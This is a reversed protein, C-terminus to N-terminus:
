DPSTTYRSYRGVELCECMTKCQLRRCLVSEAKTHAQMPAWSGLQMHLAAQYCPKSDRIEAPETEKEMISEKSDTKGKGKKNKQSRM